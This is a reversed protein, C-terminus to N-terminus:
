KGEKRKNYESVTIGGALIEAQRKRAEPSSKAPDLYEPYLSLCYAYVDVGTLDRGTEPCVKKEDAM